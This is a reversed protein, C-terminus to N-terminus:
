CKVLGPRTGSKQVTSRPVPAWWCDRFGGPEEHQRDSSTPLNQGVVPTGTVVTLQDKERDPKFLGLKQLEVIQQLMNYTETTTPNRFTVGKPTVVLQRALAWNRSRDDLGELADPLSALKREEEEKRWKLIKPAYGGSGLHYTNKGNELAKEVMQASLAKAEASNKQEVFENWVDNPIRGNDV